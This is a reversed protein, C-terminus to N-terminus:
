SPLLPLWGDARNPWSRERRECALQLDIQVLVTLQRRVSLTRTPELIAICRAIGVIRRTTQGSRSFALSAARRRHGIPATSHMSARTGAGPGCLPQCSRAPCTPLVPEIRSDCLCLSARKASNQAIRCIQKVVVKSLVPLHGFTNL